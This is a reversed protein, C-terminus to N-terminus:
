QLSGNTPDLRVPLVSFPHIHELIVEALDVQRKRSRSRTKDPSAGILVGYMLTLEAYSCTGRLTHPM